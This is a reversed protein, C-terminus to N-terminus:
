FHNKDLSRMLLLVSNGLDWATVMLYAYKSQEFFTNPKLEIYALYIGQDIRNIIKFKSVQQNWLDLHFFREIINKSNHISTLLINSKMVDLNKVLFRGEKFNCFLKFGEDSVLYKLEDEFLPKEIILPPPSLVM